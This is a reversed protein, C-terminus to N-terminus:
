TQREKGHKIIKWMGLNFEETNDAMVKTIVGPSVNSIM